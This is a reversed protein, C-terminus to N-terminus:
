FPKSIEWINGDPDKFYAIKRSRIKDYEWTLIAENGSVM